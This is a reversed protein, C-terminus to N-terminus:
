LNNKRFYGSNWDPWNWKCSRTDCNQPNVHRTQFYASQKNQLYPIKPRCFQASIRPLCETSCIVSLFQEAQYILMLQGHVQMLPIQIPAQLIKRIYWFIRGSGAHITYQYWICVAWGPLERFLLDGKVYPNHPTVGVNSTFTHVTTPKCHRNCGGSESSIRFSGWWVYVIHQSRQSFSSHNYGQDPYTTLNGIESFHFTTENFKYIYVMTVVPLM